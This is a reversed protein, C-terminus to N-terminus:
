ELRNWGTRGGWGEGGSVSESALAHLHAAEGPGASPAGAARCEESELATVDGLGARRWGPLGPGAARREGARVAGARGRRMGGARRAGRGERGGAGGLRGPTPSGRGGAGAGHGGM